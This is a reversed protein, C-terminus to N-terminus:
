PNYLTFIYKSCIQDASVPLYDAKPNNDGKFIYTNDDSLKIIRHIISKQTGSSTTYLYNCIDGVAIEEPSTLMKCLVLAGTNITPEMSESGIYVLKYGFINAKAPNCGNTFYSYGYTALIICLLIILVIQLNLKIKHKTM